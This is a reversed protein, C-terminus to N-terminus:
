ARRVAGCPGPGQDRLPASSAGVLMWGGGDTSQDCYVRVMASPTDPHCEGNADLQCDYQVVPYGVFPSCGNTPCGSCGSESFVSSSCQMRQNRLVFSGTPSQGPRFGGNVATLRGARGYLLGM